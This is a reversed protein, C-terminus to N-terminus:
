IIPIDRKNKPVPTLTISSFGYDIIKVKGDKTIMINTGSLDNHKICNDYLISVASMIHSKICARKDALTLLPTKDKLYKDLTVGDIYEMCISDNNFYYVEPAIGLSHAKKQIEAEISIKFKCPKKYIKIVKNDESLYVNAHKGNGIIRKSM